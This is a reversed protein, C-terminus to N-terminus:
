RGPQKRNDLHLGAENTFIIYQKEDLHKFLIQLLYTIIYAQLSSSGIIEELTKTETLVEQYGKYYIPQGDM